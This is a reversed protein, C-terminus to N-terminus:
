ETPHHVSGNMLTQVGGISVRYLLFGNIPFKRASASVIRIISYCARTIGITREMAKLNKLYISNKITRILPDGVNTGLAYKYSSRFSRTRVYILSRNFFKSFHFIYLINNPFVRVNTQYMTSLNITPSSSFFRISNTTYFFIRM